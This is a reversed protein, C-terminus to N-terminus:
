SLYSERRYTDSSEVKANESFSADVTAKWSISLRVMGRDNLGRAGVGRTGRACLHKIRKFALSIIKQTISAAPKM